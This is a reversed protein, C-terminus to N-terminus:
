HSTPIDPYILISHPLLSLFMQFINKSFVLTQTNINPHWAVESANIIQEDIIYGKIEGLTDFLLGLPSVSGPTTHLIRALDYALAFRVREGILSRIVSQSIKKEGVLSILYFSKSKETYVLLTKAEIGPVESITARAEEVTHIAPHTYQDYELQHTDLYQYIAQTAKPLPKETM